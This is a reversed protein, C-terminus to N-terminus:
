NKLPPYQILIKNVFLKIQEEKKGRKSPIYGKGVGQWILENKKYDIIDIFLVGETYNHYYYSNYWPGISLGSSYYDYGPYYNIKKNSETFFNILIDPEITSKRLGKNSLEVDIANLIRKKDIDNIEAQDIGKKSFAYTKYDNFNIKNNFDSNVRIINCSTLILVLTGLIIKNTNKM